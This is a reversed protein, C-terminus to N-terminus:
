LWVLSLANNTNDSSSDTEEESLVLLVKSWFGGVMLSTWSVGIVLM